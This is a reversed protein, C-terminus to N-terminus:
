GEGEEEDEYKRANVQGMQYGVSFASKWLKRRPLNEDAIDSITDEDNAESESIENIEELNM